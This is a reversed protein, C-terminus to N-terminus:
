SKIDDAFTACETFPHNEERTILDPQTEKLNYLEALAADLVEPNETSLFDQAQAAVLLHATGWYANVSSAALTLALAFQSRM